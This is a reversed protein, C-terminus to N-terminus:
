HLRPAGVSRGGGEAGGATATGTGQAPQEPGDTHEDDTAVTLLEVPFALMNNSNDLQVVALQGYRNFVQGRTGACSNYNVDYTAKGDVDKIYGRRVLDRIRAEVNPADSSIDVRKGKQQLCIIM